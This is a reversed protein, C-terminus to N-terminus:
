PQAVRFFQQSITAPVTVSATQGNGTVTAYPQWGQALNTSQQVTYTQNQTTQFSFSFNGSALAGPVLQPSVQPPAPTGSLAFIATSTTATTEPGDPMFFEVAAIPETNWGLAALNVTTQYLNPDPASDDDTYFANFFGTYVRGFHTLAAAGPDHYWDNAVYALPPSVAGNTFEILFAATGGGNASTALVSLSDYAAPSVLYLWGSAAGNTLDLANVDTFPAFEFLTSGDLMSTVTATAPLGLTHGEGGSHYIAALNTEYFTYAGSFSQAYFATDTTGGKEGATNEVVLDSEFGTVAIPTGAPGLLLVINSSSIVGLANSVLVTYTAADGASLPGLALSPLSSGWVHGGDTMPAGNKLWQYSLPTAGSAAVILAAIQGPYDVQSQTQNAIQPAALWQVASVLSTAAGFGNSVVLQYVGANSVALEPGTAGDINTGDFFWQYELPPSGWAGATLVTSGGPTVLQAGPNRDILPASSVALVAVTATVAGYSNAAAVSYSGAGATQANSVTFTAETAGALNTGDFLWQWQLPEAGAVDPTLVTSYGASVTQALPASLIRPQGYYPVGQRIANNQVDAVYVNGASDVALGIPENFQAMSAVGNGGGVFGALGAVTTVEGGPTIERIVNNATDAVFVFGGASAAVGQPNNFLAANGDRSGAMAHTGALTTTAGGPAIRRIVENGADAVYLNTAGDLAIGTPYDFLANTGLADKYGATNLRGAYTSVVGNSDILRILQNGYDSVYVNMAGDVAVGYPHSFVASGGPGNAFGTVGAKGALTSVVWIPSSAAPTIKRLTSNAYDAVYVNSAADVALGTPEDFRAAGNTGDASGALGAQGALTTVTGATTLLRITNNFTDAVYLNASADVAVGYPEDFRANLVTGDASGYSGGPGALTTVFGAPSIKRITRNISDGVYVNGASDVAMGEPYYFRAASGAGDIDGSQGPSGALTMIVWNAGTSDLSIKRVTHNGTDAVYLNTAADVAIGEPEFFRAVSNTGDSNGSLGAVGAVTSVLGFPSIRRITDNGYEAVYLSGGSDVALGVPVSFEANTGLGNLSGAQGNGALTEVHGGALKRVVNNVTDAVYINEFGDVAVAYPYNFLAPLPVNTSSPGNRYGALGAVGAITATQGGPSIQRLVQNYTDAVFINGASDVAVGYPKSFLAARGAGDLTGATQPSGALTRVTGDPAIQRITDNDTDAVFVHGASDVALSAPLFFRAVAGLGDASGTATLGALTGIALPLEVTLVAPPSSTVLGVGNTVTLVYSGSANTPVDMLTLDVNTAGAIPRGGNYWQYSLPVTGAVSAALTINTGALVAQSQPAATLLLGAFPTGLRIRSNGSDAIYVNGAGDVALGNPDLPANDFDFRALSGIGNSNGSVGALGALTVSSWDIGTRTLRRITDNFFDSVYVNTAGDVALGCPFNFGINTGSGDAGGFSGAITSVLGAPSIMRVSFNGGDAVYLNTADDLAVSNPSFFRAAASDGDADGPMGFAGAYVSVVWNTGTSDPTILRVCYNDQDAIYLRGAGDVAIGTPNDFRAATNTGNLSGPAGGGALTTVIWNTGTADASLRRISHNGSDAVYINNSADVTLATPGDFRAAANTGDINGEALATGALTTTTRSGGLQSVRRIVSNYTDAVYVNGAADIAVGCPNYFEATLASGNLSGHIGSGALTSVSLAQSDARATLLSLALLGM